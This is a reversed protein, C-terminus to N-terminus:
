LGRDARWMRLWGKLNELSSRPYQYEGTFTRKPYHNYLYRYQTALFARAMEYQKTKLQIGGVLDNVMGFSYVADLDLNIPQDTPVPGPGARAPLSGQSAPIASAAVQIIPVENIPKIPPVAPIQHSIPGTSVQPVLVSIQGYKHSLKEVAIKALPALDLGCPANKFTDCLAQTEQMFKEYSGDDGQMQKYTRKPSPLPKDKTIDEPQNIGSDPVSFQEDTSKPPMDNEVAADAEDVSPSTANTDLEKIMDRHGELYRLLIQNVM